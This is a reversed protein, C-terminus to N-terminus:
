VKRVRIYDGDFGAVNFSGDEANTGSGIGVYLVGDSPITIEISGSPEAEGDPTSAKILLYSGGCKRMDYVYKNTTNCNSWEIQYREQAHVDFVIAPCREGYWQGSDTLYSEYDWEEQKKSETIVRRRLM